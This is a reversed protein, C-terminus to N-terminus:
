SFAVDWTVQLSDAVGKNVAAFLARAFFVGDGSTNALGNYLGVETIANASASAAFTVTASCKGVAGSVYAFAARGEEVDTATTDTAAANGGSATTGFTIVTMATLETDMTTKVLYTKGVNLLTNKVHREDKLTGDPGFLKVTMEGAYKCEDFM